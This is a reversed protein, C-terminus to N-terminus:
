HAREADIADQKALWSAIPALERLNERQLAERLAARSPPVAPTDLLVGIAPLAVQAQLRGGSLYSLLMRALEARAADSTDSAMPEGRRRKPAKGARRIFWTM